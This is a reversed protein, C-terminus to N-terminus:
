RCRTPSPTSSRSTSTAVRYSDTLIREEALAVCRAFRDIIAASDPDGPDTTGKGIQTDGFAEFEARKADVYAIMTPRIEPPLESLATEYATDLTPRARRRVTRRGSGPRQVTTAM